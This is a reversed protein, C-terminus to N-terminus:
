ISGQRTEMLHRFAASREKYNRFQGFSAAAPSL